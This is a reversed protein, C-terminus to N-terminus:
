ASAIMRLKEVFLLLVLGQGYLTPFTPVHDYAEVSGLVPTGGSVGLVAGDERVQTLVAAVARDASTLALEAPIWGARAAKYLGCAIGASGSTEEYFHPRDLVTPWLGSENQCRVLAEALRSYRERLESILKMDGCLEGAEEATMPVGVAIWANARNWRAASMWDGTEGNWGHFLMGTEEDQLTQLHLLTQNMAEEALVKSGTLRATRALFLIAMFVTDAWVQESFTASETVTHEFAGNRTRPAEKILWLAMEEAKDKYFRNGTQRFLLPFIAYPALSNIVKIKESGGINQETWVEVAQIMGEAGCFAGYDAAAILGVGPNWDWRNREMAWEAWEHGGWSEPSSFMLYRYVRDAAAKLDTQEMQM